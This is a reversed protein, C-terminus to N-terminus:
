LSAWKAKYGSQCSIKISLQVGTSMEYSSSSWLRLLASRSESEGGGLQLQRRGGGELQWWGKMRGPDGEMETSETRREGPQEENVTMSGGQFSGDMVHHGNGEPACVVRQFLQRYESDACVGEMKQELGSHDPRQQERQM